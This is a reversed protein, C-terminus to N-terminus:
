YAPATAGKALIARLWCSGLIMAIPVAPIGYREEFNSVCAYFMILGFAPMAFALQWANRSRIAAILVVLFIPFTLLAGRWLMPLILAVHALPDREIMALARRTLQQDAALEPNPSGAARFAMKEKEWEARGQYYYSIAAEPRGAFM